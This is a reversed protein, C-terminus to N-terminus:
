DAKSHNIDSHLYNYACLTLHMNLTLQMANMAHM